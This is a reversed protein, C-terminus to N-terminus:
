RPRWRLDPPVAPRLRLEGFITCLFCGTQKGCQTPVASPSSQKIPEELRFSRGRRVEADAAARRAHHSGRQGRHPHRTPLVRHAHRLHPGIGAPGSYAGAPCIGGAPHHLAASGGADAPGARHVRRVPRGTGSGNGAPVPCRGGCSGASAPLGAAPQGPHVDAGCVPPRCVRVRHPAPATSGGLGHRFHGACRRGAHAQAAGATGRGPGAAGPQAPDRGAREAGPAPPYALRRM